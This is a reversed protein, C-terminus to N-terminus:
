SAGKRREYDIRAATAFAADRHVQLFTRAGEGDPDDIAALSREVLERSTIKRAALQRSLELLTMAAFQVPLPIRRTTRQTPRGPSGGRALGGRVSCKAHMWKEPSVWHGLM